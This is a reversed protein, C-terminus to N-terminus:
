LQLVTVDLVGLDAHEDLLEGALLHGQFARQLFGPDVRQGAGGGQDLGNGHGLAQVVQGVQLAHDHEAGDIAFAHARDVVQGLHAGAVCRIRLDIAVVHDHDLLRAAARREAFEDTRDGRDADERKESGRDQGGLVCVLEIDSSLRGTPDLSLSGLSGAWRAGCCPASASCVPPVASSRNSSGARSSSSISRSAYQCIRTLRRQSTSPTSALTTASAKSTVSSVGGTYRAVAVRCISIPLACTQ